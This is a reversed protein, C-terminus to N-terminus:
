GIVAEASLETRWHLAREKLLAPILLTNDDSVEELVEFAFADEGHDKWAATLAANYFRGGTRLAFWVSNQQRDLNPSSAVWAEGTMICRVAFIGPNPKQEKFTRILDKKRTKEM